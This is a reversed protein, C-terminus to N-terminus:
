IARRDKIDLWAMLCTTAYVPFHNCPSPIRWCCPSQRPGKQFLCKAWCEACLLHEIFKYQFSMFIMSKHIFLAMSPM